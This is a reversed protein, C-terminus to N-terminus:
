PENARRSACSIFEKELAALKRKLEAIDRRHQAAAKKTSGTEARIEKRAIRATEDKLAKAFNAM